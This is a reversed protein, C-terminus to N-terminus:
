FKYGLGVQFNNFKIDDLKLLPNVDEGMKTLGLNYRAEVFLGKYFTYDAGFHIGFATKKLKDALEKKALPEVGGTIDNNLNNLDAGTLNTDKISAKYQNSLIFGVDPGVYIGLEPIVYYKFSIPISIQNLSLEESLIAYDGSSGVAKGTSKGGTMAYQLEGMLAINNQFRYEVFGGAYFGSVTKKSIEPIGGFLVPFVLGQKNAQSNVYGAKVGYHFQQSSLMGFAVVLTALLFKKM